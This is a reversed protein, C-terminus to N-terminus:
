RAGRPIRQAIAPTVAAAALRVAHEVRQDDGFHRQREHQKGAGTQQHAAEDLQLAAVEAEASFAHERRAHLKRGRAVVERLGVAEEAFGQRAHGRQGPNLM